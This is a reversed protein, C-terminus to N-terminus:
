HRKGNGHSARFGVIVPTSQAISAALVDSWEMFSEHFALKDM